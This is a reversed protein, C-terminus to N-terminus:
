WAASDSGFRLREALEGLQVSLGFSTVDRDFLDDSSDYDRRMVTAAVV